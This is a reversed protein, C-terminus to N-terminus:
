ENLQKNINTVEESLPKRTLSVLLSKLHDIHINLQEAQGKHQQFISKYASERTAINLFLNRREELMRISVRLSDEIKEGQKELLVRETFVHGIHCRYRHEPEHNIEWLSGGCDPCTLTSNRGIREMEKISSFMQETVAAEAKIEDPIEQHKNPKSIIDDIIYAMDSVPVQYDVNVKNLVNVPMDPFQAELPEQVICIGGSRKIALMGSTGDDMMGSLIIGIVRSGYAAAASRFLVDVSPRWRNEHAGKIVRINESSIFLHYDPPALYLHGPLIPEKDNPVKCKYSTNKTLLNILVESSSSKSLHIVVFIAIPLNGPIKKVLESVAQFGGASAGMVILNKLEM